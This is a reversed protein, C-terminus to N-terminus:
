IGDGCSTTSRNGCSITTSSNSKLTSADISDDGNWRIIVNISADESTEDM